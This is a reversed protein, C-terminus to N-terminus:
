GSVCQFGKCVALWAAFLVVCVLVDVIIIIKVHRMWLSRSSQQRRLRSQSTSRELSMGGVDEPQVDIRLGRTGHHEDEGDGMPMGKEKAKKKDKRGSGKGLLPAKSSTCGSSGNSGGRQAGGEPVLAARPMKELSAVLRQVAPVLTDHFGNRNTNRFEDRVRELFQLAGVNGVSPDIIAFFTHGDAMLYGYSRSGSTHIYHRHYPPVNELCLAATAETQSDGDKSSYSYIVKNGKAICCYVTNDASSSMRPDEEAVDVELPKARSSLLKVSRSRRSNM